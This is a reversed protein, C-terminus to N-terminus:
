LLPNALILLFHRGTERRLPNLCLLSLQWRPNGLVWVIGWPDDTFVNFIYLLICTQSGCLRTTRWPSINVTAKVQDVHLKWTLVDTLYDWCFDIIDLYELGWGTARLHKGSCTVTLRLQCPFLVAWCNKCSPLIRALKGLLENIYGKPIM